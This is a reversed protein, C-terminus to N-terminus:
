LSILTALLVPLASLLPTSVLHGAGFSSFAHTVGTLCKEKPDNDLLGEKGESACDM